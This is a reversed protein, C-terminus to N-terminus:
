TEWDSLQWGFEHAKIWRAAQVHEGLWDLHKLWSPQLGVPDYVVAPRRGSAHVVADHLTTSTPVGMTPYVVVERGNPLRFHIAKHPGVGQFEGGIIEIANRLRGVMNVHRVAIGESRVTEVQTCIREVAADVLRGSTADVEAVVLETRSTTATRPSPTSGPWLVQLVAIGKSLARGFEASTWRSDFYTPTDLMVLVDSDCLRHWLATQFDEAPAIAHTDLFVEFLRASLADFLQLAAQRAEDRRYSLFIRRQRPLLGACELLASAVRNPSVQSYDLCNFPRLQNPLHEHVRAISSVVPLVPVARSLLPEVNMTAALDGGFFVAAASNRVSPEFAVPRISWTVEDGFLLGFAEVAPRLADELARLQDDSPEGLAALEYITTM